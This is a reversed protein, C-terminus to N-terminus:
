KVPVLSITDGQVSIKYPFKIERFRKRANRSWSDIFDEIARDIERDSKQLTQRTDPFSFYFNRKPITHSDEEWLARLGLYTQIGFQLKELPKNPGRILEIKRDNYNSFLLKPFQSQTYKTPTEDDDDDYEEPEGDDDNTEDIEVHESENESEDFDITETESESEPEPEPTQQISQVIAPTGGNGLYGLLSAVIENAGDLKGQVYEAARKAQEAELEYKAKEVLWKERISQIQQLQEM